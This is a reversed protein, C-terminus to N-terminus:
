ITMGKEKVNLLGARRVYNDAEDGEFDDLNIIGSNRTFHLLNRENKFIRDSDCINFIKKLKFHTACVNM